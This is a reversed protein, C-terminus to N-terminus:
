FIAARDWCHNIRLLDRSDGFMQLKSKGLFPLEVVVKLIQPVQKKSGNFSIFTEGGIGAGTCRPCKQAAVRSGHVGSGMGITEPPASSNTAICGGWSHQEM